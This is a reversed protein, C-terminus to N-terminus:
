NEPVLNGKELFGVSLTRFGLLDWTRDGRSGGSGREPRPLVRPNTGGLGPGEEGPALVLSYLLDLRHASHGGAVWGAVGTLTGAAGGQGGPGARPSGSVAGVSVARLVVRTGLHREFWASTMLKPEGMQLGAKQDSRQPCLHM